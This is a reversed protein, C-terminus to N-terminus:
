ALCKFDNHRVRAVAPGHQIARNAVKRGYNGQKSTKTVILRELSVQSDEVPDSFDM